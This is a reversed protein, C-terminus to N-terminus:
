VTPENKDSEKEKKTKVTKIWGMIGCELGFFGFVAVILTTPESGIKLFIYLVAAIFANIVVFTWILLFDTMSFEKMGIGEEMRGSIRRSVM